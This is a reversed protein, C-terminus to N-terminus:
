DDGDADAGSVRFLGIRGGRRRGAIKMRQSAIADFFGLIIGISAIVYIITFIRGADTRPAFDGYGITALTVFCFYLSDLLRWGEIWHYFLMGGVLAAVAGIVLGRTQADRAIAAIARFVGAFPAILM